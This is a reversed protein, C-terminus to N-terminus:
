IVTVDLWVKEGFEINDNHHLRYFTLHQGPEEPARFHVEVKLDEDPGIAKLNQNATSWPEAIM